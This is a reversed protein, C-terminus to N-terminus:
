GGLLYDPAPVSVMEGTTDHSFDTPTPGDGDARDDGQAPLAETPYVSTDGRADRRANGPKAFDPDFSVPLSSSFNAASLEGPRIGQLVLATWFREGSGDGLQLLTDNGSRQLRVLGIEFGNQGEFDRNFLVALEIVDVKAGKADFDTIIDAVAGGRAADISLSFVDSGAGGTITDTGSGLYTNGLGFFTDSGQGGDIRNKGSLDGFFDDGQNGFLVDDGYGGLLRDDGAGGSLLATNFRGLLLDDDQGGYLTGNYAQISDDGRLGFITRPINDSGYFYNNGRNGRIPPLDDSV